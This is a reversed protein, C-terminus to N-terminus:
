YNKTAWESHESSRTIVHNQLGIVEKDRRDDASAYRDVVACPCNILRANRCRDRERFSVREPVRTRRRIRRSSTACGRAYVVSKDVNLSADEISFYPPDPSSSPSFNSLSSYIFFVRRGRTDAKRRSLARNVRPSLPDSNFPPPLSAPHSLSLSLPLFELSDENM